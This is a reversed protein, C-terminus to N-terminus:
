NSGERKKSRTFSGKSYTYELFDGKTGIPLIIKNKDLEVETQGDTIMAIRNVVASLNYVEVTTYEPETRYALILEPRDDGNLDHAIIEIRNCQDITTVGVSKGEYTVFVTVTRNEDVQATVYYGNPSIYTSERNFGSALSSHPRAERKFIPTNDIENFQAKACLSVLLCCCFIFALPIKM